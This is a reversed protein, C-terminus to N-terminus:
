QEEPDVNKGSMNERAFLKELFVAFNTTSKEGLSDRILDLFFSM